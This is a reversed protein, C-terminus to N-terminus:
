IRVPGDSSIFRYIEVARIGHRDISLILCCRYYISRVAIGKVWLKALVSTCFIVSYSCKARSILVIQFGLLTDTYRETMEASSITM